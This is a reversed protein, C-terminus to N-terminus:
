NWYDICHSVNWNLMNEIPWPAFILNIHAFWNAELGWRKKQESHLCNLTVYADKCFGHVSSQKVFIQSLIWFSNSVFYPCHWYFLIFMFFMFWLYLMNSDSCISTISYPCIFPCFTCIVMFMLVLYVLMPNWIFIFQFLM